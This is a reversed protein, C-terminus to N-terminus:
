CEFNGKNTIKFNELEISLNPFDKILSINVDELSVEADINENILQQVFSLVQPKFVIPLAIMAGLLVVILISLAILIKKM